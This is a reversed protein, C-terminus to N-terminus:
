ATLRGVLEPREEKRGPNMKSISNLFTVRVADGDFRCTVVDHHPTEHYRWTMEFTQADKWTGSAAVKYETGLPPAGGAILRPPTGPLGTEAREWKELGCRIAHGTKGEHFTVVCAEPLFAFSM